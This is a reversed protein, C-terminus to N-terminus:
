RWLTGIWGAQIGPCNNFAQFEDFLILFCESVRLEFHKLLAEHMGNVVQLVSTLCM